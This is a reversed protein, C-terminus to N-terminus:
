EGGRIAAAIKDATVESCFEVSGMVEAIKACREREAAVAMDVLFKTSQQVSGLIDEYAIM